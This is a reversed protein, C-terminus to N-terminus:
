DLGGGKSVAPDRAGVPVSAGACLDGTGEVPQRRDVADMQPRVQQENSQEKNNSGSAALATRLFSELTYHISSVAQPDRAHRLANALRMAEVVTKDESSPTTM